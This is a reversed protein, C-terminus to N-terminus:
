TFKGEIVWETAKIKRVIVSSPATVTRSGAGASGDMRSLTDTTIAVTLVGASTNNTLKAWAGIPFAVSANSPITYTHAGVNDHFVEKGFDSMVLTYNGAQVNQPIGLFGPLNSMPTSVGAPWTLQPAGFLIATYNTGDSEIFAAGGPSITISAVAGTGPNITSTTPTLTIDGHGDGSINFIYCSWGAAFNGGGGAQAITDGKAGNFNRTILKGRDGNVYPYNQITQANMLHTLEYNGGVVGISTGASAAVASGASFPTWVHTGTNLSAIINWQAGDYIKLQSATTDMWWQFTVPSSPATAGSFLTALTNLANNISGQETLGSFTGVTALVITNQSM